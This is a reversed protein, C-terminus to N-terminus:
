LVRLAGNMRALMMFVLVVQGAEVGEWWVQKGFWRSVEEESGRPDVGDRRLWRGVQRRGEAVGLTAMAMMTSVLVGEYQCRGASEEWRAGRQWRECMTGPARCGPCGGRAAVGRMREEMEQSDARVGEAAEQRCEWIPHAQGPGGGEGARFLVGCVGAVVAGVAAEVWGVRRNGGAGRISGAEGARGRGRGRESAAQWAEGDGERGDGDDGGHEPRAPKAPVPWRAGRAGAGRYGHGEEDEPAGTGGGAGHGHDGRAEHGTSGGGDNDGAEGGYRGRRRARSRGGDGQAQGALVAAAGGFVVVAHVGETADAQCSGM